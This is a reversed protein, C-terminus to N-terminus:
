FRTPAQIGQQVMSEINKSYVTKQIFQKKFLYYM